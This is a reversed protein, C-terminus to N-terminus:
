ARRRLGTGALVALGLGLLPLSGPLPVPNPGGRAVISELGIFGDLSASYSGAAFVGGRQSHLATFFTSMGPALTVSFLDTASALAFNSGANLTDARFDTFYVENNSEDLVSLQSFAFADSGQAAAANGAAVRFTVLYTDTASNNSLDLRYDAFLGDTQSPSTAVSSYSGAMATYLGIGDGTQTLNGSLSTPSATSPDNNFTTSSTVAGGAITKLAGFQLADGVPLLSNTTDFTVSGSITLASPVPEALAMESCALALVSVLLNLRNTPRNM